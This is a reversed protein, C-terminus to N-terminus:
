EQQSSARPPRLGPSALDRAAPSRLHKYFFRREMKFLIATVGLLAMEILLALWGRIRGANWLLPPMAGLILTRAGIWLWFLTSAKM